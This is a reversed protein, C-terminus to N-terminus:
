LEVKRSAVININGEIYQIRTHTHINIYNNTRRGKRSNQRAKERGGEEAVM